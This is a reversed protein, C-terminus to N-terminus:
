DDSDPKPKPRRPAKLDPEGDKDPYTLVCGDPAGSCSYFSWGGEGEKTRHILPKGCDACMFETLVPGSRKGPKGDEDQAMYDCGKEEPNYGSCGWWASGKKKKPPNLVLGRSCEPCPFEVPVKSKFLDLEAALRKHVAAMLTKYHAKGTAIGELQEELIRTFDFNLFQFNERLVNMLRIGRFTMKLQKKKGFEEVYNRDKTITSMVAAYTSPRGIGLREMEKILSAQTFRGRAKTKNELLKGRTVDLVDGEALEPVPNDSDEKDAAAASEPDESSDFPTLEKWGLYVLKKGRGEFTIVKDGVTNSAELKATRVAFRADQLQCSVTRMWILNYLKREDENEGATTASIHTPRIAEHAAQADDKQKWTRPSEVVPLGKEKGYAFIEALADDSLATSDTRMYSIAGQEYLRQALQMTQQVDFGLTNLGATQLTITTFPPPPSSTSPSDVCSLVKVTKVTAVQEAFDKDVWHKQGDLLPKTEWAATWENFTLEVGYYNLTSHGAIEKERDDVLRVAVSQVRGSSATKDGMTEAIVPSVMYGILRDTIRRAEQAAVQKNDISRPSALAKKLASPTIENYSIRREDKLGLVQKLHWAIAEGERDQDTALIVGDTCEAQLRKLRAVVEKGKETYVYEPKFDPPYVGMGSEPLDRIHGISAVVRYDSGLYEEIVKGKAPSEVIILTTM